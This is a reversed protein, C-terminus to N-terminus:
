NTKGAEVGASLLTAPLLIDVGAAPMISRAPIEASARWATVADRKAEGSVLFLVQRAQSLRRASLSVRVPPPKPAAFVPLVTPAGEGSGWDRGPFLSATHGDEGLGLLVLDFSEVAELSEVYARAAKEAGLEAPIFHLAAPAIDVHNLWTTSAMMSNREADTTPLCREDGLWIQWAAWAAPENRLAGYVARPTNGGALVLHFEGRASIAEAAAALIFAVAADVLAADDAVPHWRYVRPVDPNM